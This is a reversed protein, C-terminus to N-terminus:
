EPFQKFTAVDFCFDFRHFRVRHDVEANAASPWMECGIRGFRLYRNFFQMSLSQMSSAPEMSPRTRLGCLNIIINFDRRSVFGGNCAIRGDASNHHFVIHFRNRIGDNIVILNCKFSQVRCPILRYEFLPQSARCTHSIVSFVSPQEM